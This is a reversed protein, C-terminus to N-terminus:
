KEDNLAKMYREVVERYRAPLKEKIANNAPDRSRERLRSWPSTPLNEFEKVVAKGNANSSSGGKSSKSQGPKSQAQQQGPKGGPKDCKGGKCNSCEKKEAEKILKTLMKVIKNQQDQTAEDTELLQLRRRSYDMRQYVDDLQGAKISQLQQVQRWASVM